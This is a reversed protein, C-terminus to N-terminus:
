EAQANHPHYAGARYGQVTRLIALGYALMAIGNILWIPIGSALSMQGSQIGTYTSAASQWVLVALVVAVLAAVFIEVARQWSKPFKYTSAASQWVLVALVVAVLTAVFIEVARQWSKSFKDVLLPIGGHQNNRCGAAAGVLAAWLFLYRALEESWAMPQAFVFRSLVGAFVLLVIGACALAIFWFEARDLLHGLRMWATPRASEDAPTM